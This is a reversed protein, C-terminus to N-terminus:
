LNDAADQAAGLLESAIAAVQAPPMNRSPTPLKNELAIVGTVDGDAESSQRLYDTAVGIAEERGMDRAAVLEAATQAIFEACKGRHQAEDEQVALTSGIM